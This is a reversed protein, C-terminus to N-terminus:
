FTGGDITDGDNQLFLGIAGATFRLEVRDGAIFARPATGEYGRHSLTFSDSVKGTCRVIEFNGNVDELTLLAVDGGSIPPFLAGGGTTVTFSLDGATIGSALTTSANNSFVQAM